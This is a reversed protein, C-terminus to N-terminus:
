LWPRVVIRLAGIAIIALMPSLDIMGLNPMFKRIPQLIPQLLSQILSGLQSPLRVGAMSLWSFVVMVFISILYILLALDVLQAIAKPVLRVIELESSPILYQLIVLHLVKLAVLLLILATDFRGIPPLLKRLPLVLPDTLSVIAQSIPNYFNARAIGLLLRLLLFFLALTFFVDTLYLGLQNLTSM